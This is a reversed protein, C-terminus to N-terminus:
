LFTRHQTDAGGWGSKVKRWGARYRPLRGVLFKAIFRRIEPQTSHTPPAQLLSSPFSSLSTLTNTERAGDRCTAAKLQSNEEVSAEPLCRDWM